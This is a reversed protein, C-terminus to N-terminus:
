IVDDLSEEARQDEMVNAILTLTRKLCFLKRTFLENLNTHSHFSRIARANQQPVQSVKHIKSLFETNFWKKFRNEAEHLYNTLCTTSISSNPEWM